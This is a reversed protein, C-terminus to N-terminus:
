SSSAAELRLDVTGYFREARHLAGPPELERWLPERAASRLYREPAARSELGYILLYVLWGQEDRQELRCREAWLFGPERIVEAMHKEELWRLYREGGDPSVWVKVMYLVPAHMGGRYCSGKFRVFTQKYAEPPLAAGSPGRTDDSRRRSACGQAAAERSATCAACTGRCPAGPPARRPPRRPRATRGRCAAPASRCRRM